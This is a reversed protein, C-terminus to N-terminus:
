QFSVERVGPVRLALERVRPRQGDTVTSASLQVVGDHVVLEILTDGFSADRDIEARVADAIRHDAPSLRSVDIRQWQLFRRFSAKEAAFGPIQQYEAYTVRLEDVPSASVYSFPRPPPSGSALYRDTRSWLRAFLALQALFVVIVAVRVARQAHRTWRGHRGVLGAVVTILTAAALRYGIGGSLQTSQYSLYAIVLAVLAVSPWRLYRDLAPGSFPRLRVSFGALVIAVIVLTAVAYRQALLLSGWSYFQSSSKLMLPFSWMCALTALAVWLAARRTKRQADERIMTVLGAVLPLAAPAMGRMGFTTGGLWWIYWGAQVWVHLLAAVCTVAWWIRQDHGRRCLLIAAAFAIGYLPHYTLLGRLPHWLVAAFQPHALDVSTFGAGGYVYPPRLWEGSMWRNVAAYEVAAILLPAAMAMLRTLREGDLAKGSRGEPLEGDGFVAHWVPPIAYLLVHPRVLLLLGCLAGVVFGDIARWRRRTLALAWLAAVLASAFVETAYLHSYPGAHTGLFLAAAGFLLLREDGDAMRRLVILASIWFVLAAMWGAAMAASVLSLPLLVAKGVAFMLGPGAAALTFPVEGPSLVNGRLAFIDGSLAAAAWDTYSGFDPGEGAVLLLLGAVLAFTWRPNLM